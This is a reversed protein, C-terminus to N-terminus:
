QFFEAALTSLELSALCSAAELPDCRVIDNLLVRDIRECDVGEFDFSKVVTKGPPVPALEVRFRSGIVGSPEFTVLDVDLSTLGTETENRIVIFARCAGDVREMKNLELRLPGDASAPAASALLLGLGLAALLRSCRLANTM